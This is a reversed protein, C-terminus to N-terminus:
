PVRNRGVSLAPRCPREDSGFFRGPKSLSPLAPTRLFSARRITPLRVSEQAARPISSPALSSRRLNAPLYFRPSPEPGGIPGAYLEVRFQDPHLEGPVVGYKFSTNAM